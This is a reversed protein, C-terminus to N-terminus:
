SQLKQLLSAPVTSVKRTEYNMCVIGTKGIAVQKGTAKNVLEYYMDFGYKNFDDVSINVLLQDGYFGESKYSIAVDSIIIGVKEELNVESTYGLNALFRMRCEHMLSLINDNGVHGGYNLDTIRISIETQFVSVEPLSIKIRSM